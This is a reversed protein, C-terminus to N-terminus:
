FIFIMGDLGMIEHCIFWSVISVTFSKRPSWFWQLNHSRGHFYFLSAGQFFVIVLRSLMNFLLSMVKGVFTWITLSINKGNTIYPHLLQVIFYASCQFILAKSSHHQLLSKLTGQVALLDIWDIGISILGSYGKSPSISFSWHKLWTIYLLSENSFIRLSSLNFAPPFLSLLPHSPQIADSVQHVHTKVLELLQYLVPFDPTSCDATWPTEFLQVHSCSSSFQVSSIHLYVSHSKWM